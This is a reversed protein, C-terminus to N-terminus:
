FLFLFLFMCEFTRYIDLAGLLGIFGVGLLGLFGQCVAQLLQMAWILEEVRDCEQANALGSHGQDEGPAGTGGKHQIKVISPELMLNLENKANVQVM